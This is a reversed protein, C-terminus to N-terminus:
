LDTEHVEVVNDGWAPGDPDILDWALVRASPPNPQRVGPRDPFRGRVYRERWAAVQPTDPLYGWIDAAPRAAVAEALDRRLWGCLRERRAERRAAQEAAAQPLARWADLTVPEGAEEVAEWGLLSRLGARGEWALYWRGAVEALPGGPADAFVTTRGTRASTVALVAGRLGSLRVEGFDDTDARLEANLWWRRGSWCGRESWVTLEVTDDAPSRVHARVNRDRRNLVSHVGAALRRADGGAVQALLDVLAAGRVFIREELPGTTDLRAWLPGLEIEDAGAHLEPWAAAQAARAQEQERADQADQRLSEATPPLGALDREWPAMSGPDHM